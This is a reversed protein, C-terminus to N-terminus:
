RVEDSKSEGPFLHRAVIAVLAVYNAISTSVLTILVNNDLHFGDKHSGSLWLMRLINRTWWINIALVFGFMIWKLIYKQNWDLTKQRLESEKGSSFGVQEKLAELYSKAKAALVEEVEEIKPKPIQVSKQSPAPAPPRSQDEM